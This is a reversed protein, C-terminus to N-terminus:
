TDEVEGEGYDDDVDVAHISHAAALLRSQKGLTDTQAQQVQQHQKKSAMSVM